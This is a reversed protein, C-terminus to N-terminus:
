WCNKNSTKCRIRNLILVQGSKKVRIWHRHYRWWRAASFTVCTVLIGALIIAVCFLTAYDTEIGLDVEFGSNKTSLVVSSSVIQSVVAEFHNTYTKSGEWHLHV